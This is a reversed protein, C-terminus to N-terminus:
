NSDGLTRRRKRRDYLHELFRKQYESEASSGAASVRRVAESLSLGLECLVAAATTGTRGIGAACHVLVNEGRRLSDAIARVMSAFAEENDPVGFDSIPHAVHDWSVGNAIAEAYEPSHARLESEPTLCVVRNVRANAIAARATAYPEHRGPM